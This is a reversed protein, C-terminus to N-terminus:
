EVVVMDENTVAKERAAITINKWSYTEGDPSIQLDFDVVGQVKFVETPLAVCIVNQGINLGGRTDSGIYEILRQKIQEIGDLPFTSDTQLNFVKVWVNVPAPRSFSINKINGAADVVPVTVNGYTQIGAGKRRHIAKAIEEDLGGYVVLEISHPPLGSANTEDTDNEEGTVAIVAEVNEYIAAIIADLNVGGAFDTSVYYRARFEDDTETNRGGEFSAANTVSTIGTKPNTIITITGADTNGDPGAVVASAPLTISGDLIVGSQLTIYQQGAITEALYGEPVETGIEGTFTLYGVAKQAGLLRLGIARGLNYLSHGVATDVFRSNYVDELTSFLLNLMWAYIRLFIGLPSRVTLNAKSGFLERAKYELADLLEAYTPRRFGADTLGWDTTKAM